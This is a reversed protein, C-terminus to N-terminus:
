PNQDGNESDADMRAQMWACAFELSSFIEYPKQIVYFAMKVTGYTVPRHAVVAVCKLHKANKLHLMAEFRMSYSNVEDLVLGYNGSM